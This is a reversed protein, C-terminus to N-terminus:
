SWRCPLVLFLRELWWPGVSLDGRVLLESGHTELLPLALTAVLGISLLQALVGAPNRKLIMARWPGAFGFGLAELVIGFGLGVAFLLGYRAGVFIAIMLVISTAILILVSRWVYPASTKSGHLSQESSM